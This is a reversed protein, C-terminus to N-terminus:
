LGLMAEALSSDILLHNAYGKQIALKVLPAKHAGAAAIIIKCGRDAKQGLLKLDISKILSSGQSSGIPSVLSPCDIVEGEKDLLYYNLDGIAGGQLIEELQSSGLSAKIMQTYLGQKSFTGIGLLAADALQMAGFVEAESTPNSESCRGENRYRYSSILSTATISFDAPTMTFNLPFLQLNGISGRKMHDLIRAVTYGNSVGLSFRDSARAWEEIWLSGFWGLIMEKLLQMKIPRTEVVQICELKLGTYQAIEQEMAENRTASRMRGDLEGRFYADRILNEISHDPGMHLFTEPASGAFVESVFVKESALSQELRFPLAEKSLSSLELFQSIELSYFDCIANLNEINSSYSKEWSQYTRLPVHLADAVNTQSLKQFLRLERILTTVRDLLSNM